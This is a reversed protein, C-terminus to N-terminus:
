FPVVKWANKYIKKKKNGAEDYSYRTTSFEKIRYDIEREELIKNLTDAKKLLKGDQKANIKKILESRDKLQLLVVKDKVMKDLYSDLEYDENIMRYTYRGTSEDYFGFMLALYKCYGFKDFNKLMVSYDAIDEKKKFYMPENIKKTYSNPIINGNDDYTMDDYLINNIDNQMPYKEILKDVSYDNDMYFDAMEIKKEMNRKLGALKQNNIIKIYIGVKDDVNQIRKRGMCQILSSIDVIDIVIHKVELDVINIGADFCSTTILFQEEFRENILIDKIKEKDVFDYYKKNNASCNFVCYKKYKSYLKYAKEASQIFFIGKDGKKIGEKIFEEMTIDKHFFTLERIFSFDFPIEYEVADSLGNEKIYKKMYRSMHEGTASMFVHISEKNNNFSSDNFFYHFEDCVVFKYESLDYKKINHLKCYELSQYTIVEIIDAKGDKEIEYKFQEVCNSRHILMLIRGGCSKLFDYLVNKCFYSKGAGMPASILINDQPKWLEIDEKKIIDSIRKRDGGGNAM